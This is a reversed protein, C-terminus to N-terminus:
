SGNLDNINYGSAKVGFFNNHLWKYVSWALFMIPDKTQSNQIWIKKKSPPLKDWLTKRDTMLAKLQIIKPNIESAAGAQGTLNLITM